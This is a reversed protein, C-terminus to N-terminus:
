APSLAGRGADSGGRREAELEARTKLPGHQEHPVHEVDFGLPRQHPEHTSVVVRGILGYPVFHLDMADCTTTDRYAMVGAWRPTLMAIHCLDLVAGGALNLEVVPVQGPQIACQERVREPFVTLFFDADFPPGAPADRREPDSESTM